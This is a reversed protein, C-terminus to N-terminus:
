ASITLFNLPVSAALKIAQGPTPDFIEGDLTVPCTCSISVASMKRRVLGKVIKSAPEGFILTRIARLLSLGGYDVSNFRLAGEGVGTNSSLGLILKNLTTVIVVFYPSVAENEDGFKIGVDESRMPSNRTKFPNLSSLVLYFMALAHTIGNPLNLPHIAKRCAYIGRVVSATGFFTGYIPAADATLRMEVFPLTVPKFNGNDNRFTRDIADMLKSPSGKVGIAEATMNTQGGPLIALVPIDDYPHDNLLSTVAAQVTGDGGNIVVLDVGQDAFSQLIGTMETIPGIERHIVQPLRQMVERFRPMEKKLRTSAPNSIVGIRKVQM